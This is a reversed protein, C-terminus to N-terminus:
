ARWGRGSATAVNASWRPGRSWLAPSRQRRPRVGGPEAGLWNCSCERCRAVRRTGAASLHGSSRTERQHVESASVVSATATADVARADGWRGDTAFRRHGIPEVIARSWDTEIEMCATRMGCHLWKKRGAPETDCALASAAHSAIAPDRPGRDGQVRLRAGGRQVCRWWGRVGSRRGVDVVWM